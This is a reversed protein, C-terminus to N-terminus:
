NQQALYFLSYHYSKLLNALFIAYTCLIVDQYVIFDGYIHLIVMLAQNAIGNTSCLPCCTCTKDVGVAQALEQVIETSCSYPNKVEYSNPEIEHFSLTM